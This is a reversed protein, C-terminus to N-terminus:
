YYNVKELRLRKLRTLQSFAKTVVTESVSVLEGLELTELQPMKSVVELVNEM